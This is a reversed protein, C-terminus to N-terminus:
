RWFARLDPLRGAGEAPKVGFDILEASQGHLLAPWAARLQSAGGEPLTHEPGALLAGLHAAWANVADPRPVGLDPQTWRPQEAGATAPRDDDEDDELDGSAGADECDDSFVEVADAFRVSKTSATSAVSRLSSAGIHRFGTRNTSESVESASSDGAASSASTTSTGASATEWGADDCGCCAGSLCGWCAGEPTPTPPPTRLGTPDAARPPGAASNEREARLPESRPPPWALRPPPMPATRPREVGM